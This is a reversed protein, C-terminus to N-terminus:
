STTLATRFTVRRGTIGLSVGFTVSTADNARAAALMPTGGAAHVNVMWVGLDVAAGIAAAVTHPIDHFKLDLFVRDGREVLGRVLSPGEATFLQSGIKFGGVAGRLADALRLAAAATPVDLAVLLNNM